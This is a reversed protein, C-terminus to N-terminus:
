LGKKSMMEMTWGYLGWFERYDIEKFKRCVAVFRPENLQADLLRREVAGPVDNSIVSAYHVLCRSGIELRVGKLMSVLNVVKVMIEGNHYEASLPQTAIITVPILMHVFLMKEAFNGKLGYEDLQGIIKLFHPEAGFHVFLTEDDIATKNLQIATQLIQDYTEDPLPLKAKFKLFEVDKGRGAAKLLFNQNQVLISSDDGAKIGMLPRCSMFIRAMTWLAEKKITYVVTEGGKRKNHINQKKM